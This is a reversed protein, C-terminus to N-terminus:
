FFGVRSLGYQGGYWHAYVARTRTIDLHDHEGMVYCIAPRHLPHAVHERIDGDDIINCSYVENLAEYGSAQVFAFLDALIHVPYGPPSKLFVAHIRPDDLAARSAAMGGLSEGWLVFPQPFGESEAWDLTAQVDWMEATGFTPLCQDSRGHFRLDVAIPALQFTDRLHATLEVIWSAMCHCTFPHLLVVTATSLATKQAWGRVIMGDHTQQQWAYAGPWDPHDPRQRQADSVFHSFIRYLHESNPLM